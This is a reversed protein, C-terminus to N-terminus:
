LRFTDCYGQTIKSPRWCHQHAIQKRRQGQKKLTIWLGNGDILNNEKM